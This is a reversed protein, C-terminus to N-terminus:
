LWVFGTFLQNSPESTGGGLSFGLLISWSVVFAAVATPAPVVM